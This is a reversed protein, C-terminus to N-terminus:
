ISELGPGMTDMASSHQANHGTLFASFKSSPSKFMKKALLQREAEM